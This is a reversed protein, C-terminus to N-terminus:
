REIKRTDPSPSLFSELTSNTSEDVQISDQLTSQKIKSCVEQCVNGAMDDIRRRITDNSLSVQQIKKKTGSGIMTEIMNEPCPKILEKRLICRGVSRMNIHLRTVANFLLSKRQRLDWILYRQKWSTDCKKELCLMLTM